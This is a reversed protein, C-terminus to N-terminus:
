VQRGLTTQFAQIITYADSNMQDDWNDLGITAFAYEKNNFYFPTSGKNSAGIYLSEIPHSPAEDATGVLSGNKYARNREFGNQRTAIFWGRGDSNAPSPVYSVSGICAFFKDGTYRCIVGTFPSEGPLTSAIDYGAAVGQTRSYIGIHGANLTFTNFPSFFTDAYGTTGNPLIGNASHTWGGQFNLRYAADLDRPDKLNYKHTSASGGVFPYIAKSNTWLGAAKWAIVLTNVATKQTPNTIGAATFFTQADPDYSSGGSNLFWDIYAKKM